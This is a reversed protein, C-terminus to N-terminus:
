AAPPGPMARASFRGILELLKGLEFPKDLRHVMRAAVTAASSGYGDWGTWAVIPLEACGPLAHMAAATEYGNMGPMQIDMFVIDAPWARLLAIATLGDYAVRNDIAHLGLLQSVMDVADRNDDVLLVRSRLTETEM